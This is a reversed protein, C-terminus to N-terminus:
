EAIPVFFAISVVATGYTRLSRLISSINKLQQFLLVPLLM